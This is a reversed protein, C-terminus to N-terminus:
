DIGFRIVRKLGLKLWEGRVFRRDLHVGSALRQLAAIEECTWIHDSIGAVMAPTRPYPNALGEHAPCLKYVHLAASRRRCSERSEKLLQQNPPHLAAHEDADDPNSREVHSTSIYAPDPNGTM